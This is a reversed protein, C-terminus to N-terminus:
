RQITALTKLGSYNSWRVKRRRDATNDHDHRPRDRRHYYERANSKDGERTFLQIRVARALTVLM